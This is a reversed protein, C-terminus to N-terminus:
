FGQGTRASLPICRLFVGQLPVAISSVCPGQTVGHLAPLLLRLHWLHSHLGGFWTRFADGTKRRVATVLWVYAENETCALSLRVQIHEPCYGPGLVLVSRNAFLGAPQHGEGSPGPGGSIRGADPDEEPDDSHLPPGAGLHTVSSTNGDGGSIGPGVASTSQPQTGSTQATGPPPTRIDERALTGYALEIAIVPSRGREGLFGDQDGSVRFRWGQPPTFLVSRQISDPNWAGSDARVAFFGMGLPRADLLAMAPGTESPHVAESVVVVARCPIGDIACDEVGPRAPAFRLRSSSIGVCRAMQERYTMPFDDDYTHLVTDIGHVLCYANTVPAEPVTSVRNWASQFLLAQEFTHYDRPAHDEPVFTFLDGRAIHIVTADPLPQQDGGALVAFGANHPLQALAILQASNAYAPAKVAFIRHDIATTDICVIRSDIDWEACGILVGTGPCPQPRVAVLDPFLSSTEHNRAHQVWQYVEQPTAPVVIEVCVKELVYGPVAVVFHARFTADVGAVGEDDESADHATDPTFDGPAYRWPHGLRRTVSRLAALTISSHEDSPVPEQLLKCVRGTLAPINASIYPTGRCLAVAQVFGPWPNLHTCSQDVRLRVQGQHMACIMGLTAQRGPNHGGGEIQVSDCGSTHPPTSPATPSISRGKNGRRDSSGDDASTGDDESGSSCQSHSASDAPLVFDVKIVQGHSFHIFGHSVDAGKVGFLRDPPCSDAFLNALDQLDTVGDKALLWKFGQLVARCDLVLVRRTEFHRAPPCPIPQLAETAVVVAHMTCGFHALDVIRPETPKITILHAARGITDAIGARVQPQHHEGVGFVAPARDTLVFFRTVAADQAEPIDAEADWGITDQLMDGLDWTPPTGQGAETFCVLCGSRLEVWEDASIPHVLGHVFLSWPSEPDLGAAVCLVGRHTRRPVSAAFIGRRLSVCNCLVTAQTTAWSPEAVCIARRRDPQPMVQILKDFCEAQSADRNQDFIELAWDVGCPISLNVELIDPIYSPTFVLCQIINPLFADDDEEVVAVAPEGVPDLGGAGVGFNGDHMAFTRRHRADFAFTRHPGAVPGKYCAGQCSPPWKWSALPWHFVVAELHFPLSNWHWRPGLQAVVKAVAECSDHVGTYGEWPRPRSRQHPSRSRFSRAATHQGQDSSPGAASDDDVEDGEDDPGHRGPPPPGDSEGESCEGQGQDFAPIFTLVAHGEVVVDDDFMQGELVTLRSRKPIRVGFHAALSPLHFRHVNSNYLWVRAGLARFDCLIFVDRRRSASRGDLQSAPLDVIAMLHTCAHGQLELGPTTFVCTTPHREDVRSAEIAAEVATRGSHHHPPLFFQEHRYQVLIGTGSCLNPLHHVPGWTEPHDILTMASPTPGWVYVPRCALLVAGDFLDIPLRPDHPEPSHGVFIRPYDEDGCMQPYIYQILDDYPLPSPLMCAFYAGGVRSLDLIVAFLAPGPQEQIFRPFRLFTGYDSEGSCFRQPVTPVCRNYILPDVGPAADIIVDLYYQLSAPVQERLAVSVPQVNPTFVIAGLWRVPNGQADRSTGPNRAEDFAKIRSAVDALGQANLHWARPWCLSPGIHHVLQTVPREHPRLPDPHRIHGVESEPRAMGHAGGPMFALAALLPIPLPPVHQCALSGPLGLGSLVAFLVQRFFPCRRQIGAGQPRRRSAVCAAMYSPRVRFHQGFALALCRAQSDHSRGVDKLRGFRLLGAPGFVLGVVSSWLSFLVIIGSSCAQQEAWCLFSSTPMDYLFLSCVSLLIVGFLGCPSSSAQAEVEYLCHRLFTLSTHGDCLGRQYAGARSIMCSRTCLCAHSGAIFLICISVWLVASRTSTPGGHDDQHKAHAEVNVSLVGTSAGSGGIRRNPVQSILLTPRPGHLFQHAGLERSQFFDLTWFRGSLADLYGESCGLLEAKTSTGSGGIRRNPVLSSVALLNCPCSHSQLVFLQQSRISKLIWSTRTLFNGIDTSPPGIPCPIHTRLKHFTHVHQQFQVDDKECSCQVLISDSRAVAIPPAGLCGDQGQGLYLQM